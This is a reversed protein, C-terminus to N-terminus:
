EIEKIKWDHNNDEKEWEKYGAKLFAKHSAINDKFHKAIIYKATIFETTTKSWWMLSKEKKADWEVKKLLASGIGQSQYDKKVVFSVEIHTANLIQNPINQYCNCLGIMEGDYIYIIAYIDSEYLEKSNKFNQLDLSWTERESDLSDLFEKFQEYSIEELPVIQAITEM